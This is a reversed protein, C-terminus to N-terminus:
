KKSAEAQTKIWALDEEFRFVPWEVILSILHHEPDGEQANIELKALSCYPNKERLLTIFKKLNEFSTQFEVDVSYPVWMSVSNVNFEQRPRLPVFRVGRSEKVSPTFGLEEGIGILQDIAWGYRSTEPPFYADYIELIRRADKGTEARVRPDRQLLLEGKNVESELEAIVKEANAAAAKAPKMVLNSAIMLLTFSGGVALILLQKQEKNLDSFKM